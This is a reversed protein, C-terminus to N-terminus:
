RLLIMKKTEIFGAVKLQYFYIGSTLETGNFEVEYEGPSLEKSVLTSIENGLVDYVKITVLSREPIEYRITTAPNFPNPYNHELKFGTLSIGQDNEDVSVIGGHGGNTTRYINYLSGGGGAMIWGNNQDTFVIEYLIENQFHFENTWTVGTDSSYGVTDSGCWVESPNGPIFEIDLAWDLFDYQSSEWTQGGDLTRYMINNYEVLLLNEDYAKLVYCAITDNIVEWHVGGNTTKYITPPIAEYNYFYGVNTNVFDVRRWIDGSSLGLLENQNQSIWDQGGNTTKLFLAPKDNAPADGMAMGNMEDFMELYNMFKTLLTDFFQLQWNIGGDNSFYIKGDWTCFWIKESGKITIDSISLNAPLVRSFWNNGGDTTLYLSDNKYPGTAILSDTADIANCRGHPLNNTKNYWQSYSVLPILFLILITACNKM